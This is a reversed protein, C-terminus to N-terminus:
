STMLGDRKCTGVQCGAHMTTKAGAANDFAAEALASPMRICREERERLTILLRKRLRVQCEAHKERKEAGAADYRFGSEALARPMWFVNNMVSGVATSPMM